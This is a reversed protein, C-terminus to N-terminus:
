NGPVPGVPRVPGNAKPRPGGMMKFSNAVMGYFMRPIYPFKNTIIYCYTGKPFEPTVQFRGNAMDLDGGGAVFEFDQTYDGNYSQGPGSPRTGMKIQYSSTLNKVVSRKNKATTYGLDLYVPFGDPGWGVLPSHGNRAVIQNLGVPTGHYHYAGTPQVHANNEDLGL